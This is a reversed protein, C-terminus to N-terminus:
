NLLQFGIIKAAQNLKKDFCGFTVTEKATKLLLDAAALHVSDYARLAFARAFESARELLGQNLGIKMYHAWDKKLDEQINELIEESIVGERFLRAFAAQAEVYAILHTAVIEAEFVAQEVTLSHEEEVYLKVLASTDLYLIM